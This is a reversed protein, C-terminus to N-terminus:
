QYGKIHYECCFVWGSRIEEVWVRDVALRIRSAWKPMQVPSRWRTPIDKDSMDFVGSEDSEFGAALCDDTCDIWFQMYKDEDWYASEGPEEEMAMDSKYQILYPEGAHWGVIRWTERVWLEDGINWPSFTKAIDVCFEKQDDLDAFVLTMYSDKGTKIRWHPTEWGFLPDALEPCYKIPRRLQKTVGNFTAWVEFGTMFIPLEKM